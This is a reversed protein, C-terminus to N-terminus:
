KVSRIGKMTLVKRTIPKSLGEALQQNSINKSILADGKWEKEFVKSAM